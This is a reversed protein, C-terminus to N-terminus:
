CTKLVSEINVGVVVDLNLTVCVLLCVFIVKRICPVYAYTDHMILASDIYKNRYERTVRYLLVHFNRM